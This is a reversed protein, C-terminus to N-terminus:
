LGNKKIDLIFLFVVKFQIDKKFIEGVVERAQVFFDEGEYIDLIVFVYSGDDINVFM